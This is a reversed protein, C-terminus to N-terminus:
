RFNGLLGLSTFFRRGRSRAWYDGKTVCLGSEFAVLRHVALLGNDLCVLVVDGVQPDDCLEVVARDGEVLLPEMCRGCLTLVFRGDSRLKAKIIAAIPFTM